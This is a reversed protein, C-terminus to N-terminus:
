YNKLAEHMKVMLKVVLSGYGKIYLAELLGPYFLAMSRQNQV